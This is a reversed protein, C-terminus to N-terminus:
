MQHGDHMLLSILQTRSSVNFKKFIRSLHAKVTQESMFLEAAIEKNKKGQTVKDLIEHERKSVSEIERGRSVSGAKSLLAKLHSNDIWIQGEHVLNLAKKLLFADAETSIVGDLKHLLFINIVEEPELGTDILLVKTEPVRAALRQQLKHCDVLLLDPRCSADEHIGDAVFVNDTEVESKILYYLAESLVRSNLSIQIIM